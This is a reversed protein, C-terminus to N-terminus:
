RVRATESRKALRTTASVVIESIGSELDHGMGEVEILEAGPISAALDRGHEIPLLADETGHIV